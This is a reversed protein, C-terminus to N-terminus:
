TIIIAESINVYCLVVSFDSLSLQVTSDAIGGQFVGLSDVIYHHRHGYLSLIRSCTCQVNYLCQLISCTRTSLTSNNTKLVCWLHKAFM